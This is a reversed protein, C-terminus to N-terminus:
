VKINYLLAIPLFFLFLTARLMLFIPWATFLLPFIIIWGLLSRRENKNVYTYLRGDEDYEYITRDYYKDGKIHRTEDIFRTDEQEIREIIKLWEITFDKKNLFFYLIYGIFGEKNFYM